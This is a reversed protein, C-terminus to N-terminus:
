WGEGSGGYRYQYRRAPNSSTMDDHVRQFDEDLETALQMLTEKHLYALEPDQHPRYKVYDGEGLDPALSNLQTAMTKFVKPRNPPVAIRVLALRRQFASEPTDGTMAVHTKLAELLKGLRWLSERAVRGDIGAPWDRVDEYWNVFVGSAEFPAVALFDEDFKSIFRVIEVFLDRVKFILFHFPTVCPWPAMAHVRLDVTTVQMALYDTHKAVDYDKSQNAPNGFPGLTFLNDKSEPPVTRPSSLEKKWRTSKASWTSLEPRPLGGRVFYRIPRDSTQSGLSPTHEQRILVATTKAYVFGTSRQSAPARRDADWMALWHTMNEPDSESDLRQNVANWFVQGVTPAYTLTFRDRVPEEVEFLFSVIRAWEAELARREAARSELWLVIELTIEIPTLPLFLAVTVKGVAKTLRYVTKAARVAKAVKGLKEAGEAARVVAREATLAHDVRSTMREAAKVSAEEADVVAKTAMSTPRVPTGPLPRVPRPPKLAELRDIERERERIQKEIAKADSEAKSAAARAEQAETKLKDRAAKRAALEADLKAQTKPSPRAKPLAQKAALEQRKRETTAIRKEATAIKSEAQKAENKLATVDKNARKLDQELLGKQTALVRQEPTSKV